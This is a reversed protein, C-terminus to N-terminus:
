NLKEIAENNNLEKLLMAYRKLFLRDKERGAIKKSIILKRLQAVRIPIAGIMFVSADKEMRRFTFGSVKLILEILIGYPDTATITKRKRVIDSILKRNVNKGNVSLAADLSELAGIAKKVNNLAPQVFIDFDNTTFTEGAHSAYYNIGSMGIVIYKVGLRNFQDIAKAYPDYIKRAKM